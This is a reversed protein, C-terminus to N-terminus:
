RWRRHAYRRGQLRHHERHQLPHRGGCRRGEAGHGSQPGRDRRSGIYRLEGHRQRRRRRHHRGGRRRDPHRKGAGGHITDNGAGGTITNANADGTLVDNKASGIVNEFGSLIDGAADGNAVAGKGDGFDHTAAQATAGDRCVWISSCLRRRPRMASRTAPPWTPMASCRTPVLVARSSTMAMVAMFSTPEPM